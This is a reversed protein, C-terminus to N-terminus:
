WTVTWVTSVFIRSHMHIHASKNDERSQVRYAFFIFSFPSRSSVWVRNNVVSWPKRSVNKSTERSGEVLPRSRRRSSCVAAVGLSSFRRFSACVGFPPSFSLPFIGTSLLLLHLSGFSARTKFHRKSNRALHGDTRLAPWELWGSDFSIM